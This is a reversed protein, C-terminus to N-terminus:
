EEEEIKFLGSRLVLFLAGALGIVLLYLAIAAAGNFDNNQFAYLFALQNPTWTPNTAGLSASSILAPEVFLQTGAAFALIAMYVVWKAILPLQIQVATQWANAGDIRAADLVEVPINNLAGYMVVIWGGAGTWFAMIVFIVALHDPLVVEPFSDLGIAHLLGAFPSSSPDLMFLWVMVSAVGALAGPIYFLFRLSSSVFRAQRHIILALSVTFVLLVALWIGVYIGINVFAGVFRYDQAVKVFQGLGVFQGLSNTLSLYVAYVAPILGFVILLVTYLSVFAWGAHSPRRNRRRLWATGREAPVVAQSRPITSTM